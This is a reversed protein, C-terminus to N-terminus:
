KAKGLRAPDFDADTLGAPSKIKEFLYYEVEKGAADTAIILVPMGYSQSGKKMDFYYSRTGGNPLLPDDGPRLKHTLGALPYLYEPRTVEAEYTLSDAPAKGDAIKAM